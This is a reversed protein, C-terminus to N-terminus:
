AELPARPGPDCTEVTTYRSVRLHSPWARPAMGAKAWLAELFEDVDRVKPWVSPLLTARATFMKSLGSSVSIGDVGPQVLTRLEDYDSAAIPDLPSLVSVKVTMLPYDAGTIPPVRPDDFAAALAHAAVDVGLPQVADLTGVCGLLRRGRELTVFSAGPERLDDPFTALEPVHREGTTLATAIAALAISCLPDSM